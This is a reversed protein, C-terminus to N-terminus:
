PLDHLHNASLASGIHAAAITFKLIEGVSGHVFYPCKYLISTLVPSLLSMVLLMFMLASMLVFPWFHFLSFLKLYRRAVRHLSPVQGASIQM